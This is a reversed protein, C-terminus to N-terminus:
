DVRLAREQRRHVAREHREREPAEADRRRRDHEDRPEHRLERRKLADVGYPTSVSHDLPTRGPARGRPETGDDAVSTHRMRQKTTGSPPLAATCFANEWIM